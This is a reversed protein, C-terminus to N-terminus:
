KSEKAFYVAAEKLFDREQKVKALERKLKTLEEDRSRGQGPFADDGLLRFEDRWRRLQRESIDLEKCILRDTTGEESARKLAERKFEPSYRKYPKRKSM